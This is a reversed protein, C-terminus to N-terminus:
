VSAAVSSSEAKESFPNREGLQALVKDLRRAHCSKYKKGTECPCASNPDLHEKGSLLGAFNVLSTEVGLAEQIFEIYGTINHGRQGWAWSKDPSADYIMQREFFTAVQDLFKILATPEKAKWQTEIPLWLCCGGDLYFHRDAIHPFMNGTEHALPEYAPYYDSFVLRTKIRTPIGCEARLTISGDLFIKKHRWNLGFKLNPYDHRILARDQKLREDGEDREFWRLRGDTKPTPGVLYLLERV